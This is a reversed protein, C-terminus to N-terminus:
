VAKLMAVMYNSLAKCDGYGRTFVYNADFPQWGGVGLQVSVYRTTSQLKEYLVRAKEKPSSLGSCLQRVQALAEPPLVERGAYLQQMWQGFGEWSSMDGAYGAIEFHRPATYVSAAQERWSPGFPEHEYKPLLAAEWRYIKRAAATTVKPEELKGRVRYRVPMDAPVNLELTTREVSNEGDQPYWMPWTIIGNYLLEYEFVVTYPYADHFFEAVRVRNDEYLSYGSIASYDKVDSNKLERIKRGEADLLWGRLNKLEVLRDYGVYCRGAERGKQNFVTVATRIQETARKPSEVFFTRMELRVVAEANLGLLAPMKSVALEPQDDGRAFLTTTTTFLVFLLVFIIGGKLPTDHAVVLSSDFCSDFNKKARSFVGRAGRLPPIAAILIGGKLPTNKAALHFPECQSNSTTKSKPLVGRAGRLPPITPFIKKLM